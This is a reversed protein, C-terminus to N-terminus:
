FSQEIHRFTIIIPFFSFNLKTHFWISNQNWEDSIHEVKGVMYTATCKRFYCYIKITSQLFHLTQTICKILKIFNKLMKGFRKNPNNLWSKHNMGFDYSDWIIISGTAWLQARIKVVGQIDQISHLVKPENFDVVWRSLLCERCDNLFSPFTFIRRGKMHFVWYFSSCHFSFRQISDSRVLLCQHKLVKRYLDFKILRDWGNAFRCWPGLVLM